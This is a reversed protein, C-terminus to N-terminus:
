FVYIRQHPHPDPFPSRKSGPDLISFIRIRSLCGTDAVSSLIHRFYYPRVKPPDIQPFIEDDEEEEEEESEMEIGNTAGKV